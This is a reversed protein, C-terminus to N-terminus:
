HPILHLQIPGRQTEGVEGSREAGSPPSPNTSRILSFVDHELTARVAARLTEIEAVLLDSRRDRLNVTFFYSEGAVRNRRYNPM